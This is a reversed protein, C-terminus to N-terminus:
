LYDAITGLILGSFVHFFFAAAYIRFFRPIKEPSDRRIVHLPRHDGDGITRFRVYMFAAFIFPAHFIAAQAYGTLMDKLSWM